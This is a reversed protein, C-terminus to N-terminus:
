YYYKSDLKQIGNLMKMYIEKDFDKQLYAVIVNIQHINFDLYINLTFLFKNYGNWSVSLISKRM